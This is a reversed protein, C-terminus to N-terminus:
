LQLSCETDERKTNKEGKELRAWRPHVPVRTTVACPIKNLSHSTTRRRVICISICNDSSRSSSERGNTCKSGASGYFVTRLTHNSVYYPANTITRITNNIPFKYKTRTQNIRTIMFCNYLIYFRGHSLIDCVTQM